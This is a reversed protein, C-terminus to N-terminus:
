ELDINQSLCGAKSRLKGTGHGLFSSPILHNEGNQQQTFPSSPLVGHTTPTEGPKGANRIRNGEPPLTKPSCQWREPRGDQLPEQSCLHPNSMEGERGCGELLASPESPAAPSPFHCAPPLHGQPPIPFRGSCRPCTRASPPTLSGTFHCRHARLGASPLSLM